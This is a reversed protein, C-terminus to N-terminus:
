FIPDAESHLLKVERVFNAFIEQRHQESYPVYKKCVFSEGIQDDRLLVTKGCAGQGLEKILTYDRRRLFKIVSDETSKSKNM